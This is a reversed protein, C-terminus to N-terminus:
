IWHGITQVDLIDMDLMRIGTQIEEESLADEQEGAIFQSLAARWWLETTTEKILDNMTDIPDMTRDQTYIWLCHDKIYDLQFLYNLYNRARKKGEGTMPILEIDKLEITQKKQTKGTEEIEYLTLIKGRLRATLWELNPGLFIPLFEWDLSFTDEALETALDPDPSALASEVKSRVDLDDFLYPHMGMDIGVDAYDKAATHLEEDLYADDYIDLLGKLSSKASKKLGPCSMNAVAQLRWGAFMHVPFTRCFHPRADYITCRRDRLFVCPSATGRRKIFYTGELFNINEKGGANIVGEVENEMIEPECLCCLACGEVCAFDLGELPSLDINIM